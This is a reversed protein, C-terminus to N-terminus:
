CYKAEPVDEVNDERAVREKVKPVNDVEDEVEM